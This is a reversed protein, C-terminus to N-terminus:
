FSLKPQFLIFFIGLAVFFIGAKFTLYHSHYFEEEETPPRSENQADLYGKIGRKQRSSLWPIMRSSILITIGFLVIGFGKGYHEFGYALFKAIPDNRSM